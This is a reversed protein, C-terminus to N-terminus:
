LCLDLDRLRLRLVNLDILRGRDVSAVPDNGAMDDADIGRDFLAGDRDIHCEVACERFARAGIEADVPRDLEFPEVVNEIDAPRGKRLVSRRNADEFQGGVAFRNTHGTCKPRLETLVM